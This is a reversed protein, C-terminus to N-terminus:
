LFEKEFVNKDERSYMERWESIDVDGRVYMGGM